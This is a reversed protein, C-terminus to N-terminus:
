SKKENSHLLLNIVSEHQINYDALSKKDNVLLTEGFKLNFSDVPYGEKELIKKKIEEITDSNLCEIIVRRGM